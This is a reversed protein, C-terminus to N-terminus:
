RGPEVRLLAEDALREVPARDDTLVVGRGSSRVLFRELTFAAVHLAGPAEGRVRPAAPGPAGWVVANMEYQVNPVRWVAHEPGLGRAMSAAVADLLAGRVGDPAHLNVAVAGTPRLRRRVADFFEVTALQFPIYQTRQYADVFVLDFTPTAPLRDVVHRADRGEHLTLGPPFDGLHRRSLAVVAPDLEVGVVDVAAGPPAVALLNRHLTGGCYGVVLVRLPPPPTPPSAGLTTWPMGDFWAGLVLHDYYRGGTLLTAEDDVLRVSQYSTADEDFRLFRTRVPRPRGRLVVDGPAVVPVDTFAEVARTTQYASEIEVTQGPDERLPGRPWAVALAGLAVALGAAAVSSASSVASSPTPGPRSAASGDRSSAALDRPEPGGVARAVAGADTAGSPERRLAGRRLSVAVFLTAATCLGSTLRVGLDALLVLPTVYCGVLSALTSLALVVGAARGAGVFPARMRVAIPGAASVAFLAPGYAVLAGLFAGARAGVAAAAASSFPLTLACVALVARVRRRDQGHDISGGGWSAGAACALLVAGISLAFTEQTGGCSPTLARFATFELVTVVLGALLPVALSSRPPVGARRPPASAVAPGRTAAPGRALLLSGGVAALLAAAGIAGRAGVAPVLWPGTGVCGVLAGLTGAAGLRGAARGPEVVARAVLLPPLAGLAVVPPGLLAVTAVLSAWLSLPLPRDPAIDPPVLWAALPAAGFAALALWGSGVALVLSACRGAPDRGAWRAGLAAGLALAFLTVGVANAWVYPGQGFWPAVARVTAIEVVLTAAGACAAAALDRRRLRAPGTSPAAVAHGTGDTASSPPSM